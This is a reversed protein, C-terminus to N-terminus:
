RLGVLDIVFFVASAAEIWAHVELYLCCDFLILLLLTDTTCSCTFASTHLSSACLIKQHLVIFHIPFKSGARFLESRCEILIM